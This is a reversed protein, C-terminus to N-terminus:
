GMGQKGNGRDRQQLQRDQRPNQHAGMAVRGRTDRPDHDDGGEGQQTDHRIQQQAFGADTAVAHPARAVHNLAQPLKGSGIGRVLGLEAAGDGLLIPMEKVKPTRDAAHLGDAAVRRLQQGVGVRGDVRHDAVDIGRLLMDMQQEVDPKRIAVAALDDVGQLAGGASAHGAPGHGVVQTRARHDPGGMPRRHARRAHVHRGAQGDAMRQQADEPPADVQAVM